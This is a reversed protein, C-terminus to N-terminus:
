DALKALVDNGLRDLNEVPNGAGLAQLPIILRSVGLEEYQKVVEPGEM